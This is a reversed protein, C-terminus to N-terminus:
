NQFCVIYYSLDLLRVQVGEALTVGAGGAAEKGEDEDVLSIGWENEEHVVEEVKADPVPEPQPPFSSLVYAFKAEFFM